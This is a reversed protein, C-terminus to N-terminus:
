RKAVTWILLADRAPLDLLSTRWVFPSIPSQIAVGSYDEASRRAKRSHISRRKPTRRRQRKV